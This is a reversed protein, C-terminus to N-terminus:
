LLIIYKYYSVENGDYPDSIDHNNLIMVLDPFYIYEPVSEKVKKKEKGKRKILYSKM